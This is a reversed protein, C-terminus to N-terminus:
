YENEVEVEANLIIDSIYNKFEKALFINHQELEKLTVRKFDRASAERQKQMAVQLIDICTLEDVTVRGWEFDLMDIVRNIYESNM